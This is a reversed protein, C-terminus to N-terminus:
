SPWNKSDETKSRRMEKLWEQFEEFEDDSRFPNEFVEDPDFRKGGMSIALLDAKSLVEDKKIKQKRLIATM